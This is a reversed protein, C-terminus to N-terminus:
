SGPLAALPREPVARAARTPKELPGLSDLYSRDFGPKYVEFDVTSDRFSKLPQGM